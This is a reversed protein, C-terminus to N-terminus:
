GGAGKGIEKLAALVEAAQEETAAADDKWVLKGGDFLFAQRKPLGPGVLPVGFAEIVEGDVDAVLRFPFGFKERFAKQAEVTDKSVGLVKIGAAKLEADADRLSCGQKTCGPTDAKPFFYVLLKGEAGEAALDIEAGDDGKAKVAPVQAGIELPDGANAM